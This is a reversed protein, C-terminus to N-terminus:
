LLGLWQASLWVWAVLALLGTWVTCALLFDSLIV